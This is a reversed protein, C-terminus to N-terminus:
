SHKTSFSQSFLQEAKDPPTEPCIMDHVRKMLHTLPVKERSAGTKSYFM